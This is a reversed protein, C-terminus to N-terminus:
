TCLANSSECPKNGPTLFLKQSPGNCVCVRFADISASLAPSPSLPLSRSTDFVLRGRLHISGDRSTNFTVSTAGAIKVANAEMRIGENGRISLNEADIKLTEDVPSRIKNTIIQIASLKKIKQDISMVPHQASFIPRSTQSSFVQFHETNELRCRNEQIILRTGNEAGSILLRSGYINLEQEKYGSVQGNTVVTGLDIHNGHFEVVKETREMQPDYVTHFRLFRMGHHTMQLSMIIMINITLLSLALITLIALCGIVAYLRKARLGTVHISNQQSDDASPFSAESGSRMYAPPPM